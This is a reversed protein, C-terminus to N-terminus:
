CSNKSLFNIYQYNGPTKHNTQNISMWERNVFVNNTKTLVGSM